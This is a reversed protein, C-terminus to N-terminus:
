CAQRRWGRALEDRRQLERAAAGRNRGCGAADASRDVRHGPLRAPDHARLAARRRRQGCARGVALVWVGSAGRDLHDGLHQVVGGVGAASGPVAPTAARGHRGARRGRWACLAAVGRRLGRPPGLQPHRVGCARPNGRSGAARRGGLAPARCEGHGNGSMHKGAAGRPVRLGLGRGARVGGGAGAAFLSEVPFDAVARAAPDRDLPGVGRRDRRAHGVRGAPACHRQSPALGAVPALARRSRWRGDGGSVWNRRRAATARQAEGQVLM